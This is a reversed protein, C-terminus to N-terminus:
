AGIKEMVLNESYAWLKEQLEENRALTAPAAEKAVPVFYRGRVDRVEVDPSTALYLQSLAGQDATSGVSKRLAFNVKELLTVHKQGHSTTVIGPHAANVYVRDNALRRALALTFLMNALKSRGYRSIDNTKTPDNLTDFDIGVRPAFNEHAISSITVIRSPQSEKIRDLLTTTFVFHGLHNVAFQSEIGDSSLGFPVMMKGLDNLDLELFDMKPTLSTPYKTKIEEQARTIAEQARGQHRCALFVHAGHAALAVTTAYGLGSNAGTVIAIKGTLDPIQDHSFPSQATSTSSSTRWFALQSLPKM